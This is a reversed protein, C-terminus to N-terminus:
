PVPIFDFRLHYAIRPTISRALEAAANAKTTSWARRQYDRSPQGCRMPVAQAAPIGAARPNGPRRRRRAIGAATLAQGRERWLNRLLFSVNAPREALRRMFYPYWQEGFPVYVRVRWGAGALQEQLDRRVGYLMQFEFADAGSGRRPARRRDRAPDLRMTTRRSRRTRGKACCACCSGSTPRTSRRGTRTPSRRAAGQLRGQVAPRPWREAIIAEVDAESRRLAAQIVVGVDAREFPGRAPARAVPRAHPGHLPPGGHRDPRLGGTEVAKEVVAAINDHALGEDIKLGMQSPKLSVNRDLGRAALEDLVALYGACAARADAEATVSEGLLDVTTGM